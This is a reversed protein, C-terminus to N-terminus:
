LDPTILMFALDAKPTVQSLTLLQTKQLARTEQMLTSLVVKAARQDAATQAEEAELQRVLSSRSLRELLSVM